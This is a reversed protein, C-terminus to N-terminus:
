PLGGKTIRRDHTAARILAEVKQKGLDRNLILPLGKVAVDYTRVM